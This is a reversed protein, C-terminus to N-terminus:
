SVRNTLNVKEEIETIRRLLDEAREEMNDRGKDGEVAAKAVPNNTPKADHQPRVPRGTPTGEHKSNM